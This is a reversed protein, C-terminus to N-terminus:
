YSYFETKNEIMRRLTNIWPFGLNSITLLCDLDERPIDRLLEGIGMNIFPAAFHTMKQFDLEVAEGALLIPHILDYLKQGQDLTVGYQGIVDYVMIKM